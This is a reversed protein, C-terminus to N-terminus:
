KGMVEYYDEPHPLNIGLSAAHHEISHLYETFQKVTATTTSTLAVIQKRLEKAECQMGSKWIVRLTQIMEAYEPNDREYIQCLFKDKYQEHMDEKSHGLESGIITLWKWLLSNQAVSRDKKHERIWVEHVPELPLNAVLLEAKRKHEKSAMIIKQNM